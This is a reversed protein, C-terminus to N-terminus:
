ASGGGDIVINQGTMYSADDSILFAIVGAMESPLAERQLPVIKRIYEMHAEKGGQFAIVPDNFPTDTWGPCLCNCRINDAALEVALARTFATVAGKSASYATLGSIGKVAAMSATTVISGGGASRLHPVAYKTTLYVSKANVALQSEWDDDSIQEVPSSRQLGAINVVADLGGLLKVAHDVMGAVSPDDSVDTRIFEADIDAEPTKIDAVVVLAGQARLRGVTALGIGSAAGTVIVRKVTSTVSEEPDPASIHRPLLTCSRPGPQAPGDVDACFVATAARDSLERLLMSDWLAGFRERRGVVLGTDTGILILL